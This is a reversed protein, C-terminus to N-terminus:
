DFIKTTVPERQYPQGMPRYPLGKALWFDVRATLHKLLEESDSADEIAERTIPFQIGQQHPANLVTLVLNDPDKEFSPNVLVGQHNKSIHEFLKETLEVRTSEEYRM